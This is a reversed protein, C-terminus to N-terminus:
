GADGDPAGTAASILERVSPRCMVNTVKGQRLVAVRQGIAAAEEVDSTAVVIAVGKRSLMELLAWIQRKTAIDVGRTPDELVLVKCDGALARALLVKQQTGGSLTTVPADSSMAAIHLDDMWPRCYAQERRATFTGHAAMKALTALTLNFRVSADLCLGQSRREAPVYGIGARLAARATRRKIPRDEVSVSGSGRVDGILARGIEDRGSGAAGYVTLLEGEHVELSTDALTSTRLHEARLVTPSPTRRQRATALDPMAEDGVMAAIISDRTMEDHSLEAVKFGDRLVVARDCIAM